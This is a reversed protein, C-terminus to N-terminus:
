CLLLWLHDVYQTSNAIDTCTATRNSENTVPLEWDFEDNDNVGNYEMCDTLKSHLLSYDPETFYDMNQLEHLFDKLHPGPFHRLLSMHDCDQKIHGVAEKDTVRRWPLQGCSFEVIIYFLSM